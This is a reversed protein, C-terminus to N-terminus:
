KSWLKCHFNLFCIRLNAFYDFMGSLCSDFCGASYICIPNLVQFRFFNSKTLCPLILFIRCDHVFTKPCKQMEVANELECLDM